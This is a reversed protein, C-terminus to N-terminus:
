HARRTALASKEIRAQAFKVADAQTSNLAIREVTHADHWSLSKALRFVAACQEMDPFLEVAVDALAQPLRYTRVGAGDTDVYIM